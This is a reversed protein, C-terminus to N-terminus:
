QKRKEATRSKIKMLVKVNREGDRKLTFGDKRLSKEIKYSLFDVIKSDKIKM